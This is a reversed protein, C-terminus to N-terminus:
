YPKKKFQWYKMEPWVEKQARHDWYKLGKKSWKGSKSSSPDRSPMEESAIERPSDLVPNELYHGKDINSETKVKVVPTKPPNFKFNEGKYVDKAYAFSFISLSLGIFSTLYIKTKM